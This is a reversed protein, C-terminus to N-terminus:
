IAGHTDFHFSIQQGQNNFIVINIGRRSFSLEEGDLIISSVSGGEYGASKVAIDHGQTEEAIEIVDNHSRGQVLVTGDEIIAAFGDRFELEALALGMRGAQQRVERPLATTAEDKVSIAM